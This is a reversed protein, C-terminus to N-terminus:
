IGNMVPRALWYAAFGTVICMWLARFKWVFAAAVLAAVVRPGTDDGGTIIGPVALAAFAAVPFDDLFRKLRPSFRDSGLYFGTVRTLYTIVAAAVILPMM